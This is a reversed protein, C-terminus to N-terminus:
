SPYTHKEEQYPDPYNLKALIQTELTEMEQAEPESIHDFGLLHLTGHTVMHAWHGELSKGQAQAERAVVPACIIVDGLEPAMEGEPIGPPTEFPFSLVNTPKDRHRFDRNLRTIELEDVLRITMSTGQIKTGAPAAAFAAQAWQTLAEDSPLGEGTVARQITVELSV